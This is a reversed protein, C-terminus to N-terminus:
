ANALRVLKSTTYDALARIAAPDTRGEVVMTPAKTQLALHHLQAVWSRGRALARRAELHLDALESPINGAAEVNKLAVEAGRLETLMDSLEAIRDDSFVGVLYETSQGTLRRVFARYEQEMEISTRIFGRILRSIEAVEHEHGAQAQYVRSGSCAQDHPAAAIGNYGVLLGMAASLVAASSLKSM